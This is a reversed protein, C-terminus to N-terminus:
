ESARRRKLLYCFFPAGVFATIVGVPLEQSSPMISRAITDAWVLLLAGAITALPLVRAHNPTGAIRRAMHPVVLGVFGIIGAVAVSSATLLAGTITIVSKFRETDVGLQAAQEEGLAFVNMSPAQALLVVFGVALVAGVWRSQELTADQLSGMLRALLHFSDSPNGLQLLLTSISGLFASVIVGALLLTTVAIRGGRRALAYVAGIAALGSAFAAVPVATGHLADEHHKMLVAEAGVSAGSSVGVVYPDSLDNRLLCQLAVGAAALSAGVLAALIIRPLRILWVTIVIQDTDTDKPPGHLAATLVQHPSYHVSGIGAAVIM